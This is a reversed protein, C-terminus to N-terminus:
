PKQVSIFNFYNLEWIPYDFNDVNGDGNLDTRYYGSLFNFYDLEWVPYDFNDINGDGPVGDIDGSYMCWKSGVQVMNGGYAQGAGSAFSYNNTSGFLVPLASWTELANRHKLVIYYSNGSAAGPYTCIMTGDTNIVGSFTHALGYPSTANRLEVTLNDCQTGTGPESSNQLVPRMSGGDMYGEIYATLNLVVDGKKFGTFGIDTNTATSSVTSGSHAANTYDWEAGNYSAGDISAQTGVVDENGPIFTGTLTANYGTIGGALVNWYRTLYDSSTAPKNPHVANVLNVGVTASSYGSGTVAASLPSYNTSADNDGVEFILTSNAAIPKIFRGSGTAVVYKDSGAGTVSASSGLTLNNSGLIIKNNAAAFNLVGNVTMADNLVVNNGSTKDVRVNGFTGGGSTVQSNTSGNFIVQSAANFNMTAQNTFNGTIELTAGSELVISGTTNTLNSEVVLTAGSKVTITGGQNVLQAHLTMITLSFFLFLFIRM